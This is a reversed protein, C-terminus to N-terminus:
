SLTKLRKLVLNASVGNKNIKTFDIVNEWVSEDEDPPSIIFLPKSKRLVIFSKGKNIESIYKETNERLEKLGILKNKM